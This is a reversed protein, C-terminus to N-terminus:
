SILNHEKMSFYVNEGIIIHDLLTINVLEGTDVFKNTVYIDSDSPTPDGTPHNHAIIIGSAKHKIAYYYVEKASAVCSNFSGKALWLEKILVNRANLLLVLLEETEKERMINMYKDAVVDPSDFSLENNVFRKNTVRKTIEKLAIMQIAKVEGVGNIDKLEEENCRLLGSINAGPLSNIIESSLEECSIGKVGSRIIIAILEADTLCEPGYIKCKEYPRLYTGKNKVEEKSFM